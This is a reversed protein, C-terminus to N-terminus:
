HMGEILMRYRFSEKNKQENSSIIYDKLQEYMGCKLEEANDTASFKCRYQLYTFFFKFLCKEGNEVALNLLLDELEQRLNRDLKQGVYRPDLLYGLGHADGYIFQFREEILKKIYAIEKRELYESIKDFEIPLNLFAIYVDSVPVSDNQFKTILEDIPKLIAIIKKLNKVFDPSSVTEKIDARTQKQNLPSREIFDRANVIAFILEESALITQM